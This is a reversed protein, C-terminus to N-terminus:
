RRYRRFNRRKGTFLEGIYDDVEYHHFVFTLLISGGIAFIIALIIVWTPPDIADALYEFDSMHPRDYLENINGTIAGSVKVVDDINGLALLDDRLTVHFLENGNNLAWTMVDVWTINSEDLGIFVVVDNKEGGLWAREVTYRYTPDDIETLIVVINAQKTPGLTKLANNLETNLQSTHEYKSGVLLVRNIKYFGYVSPYTPIAQAYSQDVSSNDHFLSEPVAQVYNTYSHEVAAPEGIACNVYVAPDPTNYISRWGSEIHDFQVGGATTDATWTVTYHDEYCTSTCNGKSDTSCCYSTTYHGEDRDKSVVQGNWIEDDLTQGYIGLQWTAVTLVAVGVIQITMETWNISSHWIRKAIFPWVLPFLLLLLLKEM